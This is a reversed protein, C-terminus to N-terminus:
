LQKTFVAIFLTDARLEYGELYAMQTMSLESNQLIYNVNEENEEKFVSCTIYLLVGDPALQPLINQIIKKQLSAYKQIESKKFFCLLEPTRSWTGSGSCPVDAIIIRFPIEFPLVLPSSLNLVSAKFNKVGANSFRRELNKIISPRKDTATLCVNQITDVLLISKGGSGACCDWVDVPSIDNSFKTTLFFEGVRQSNYDQVVAEKDIKLIDSVKENASFVLCRENMRGFSIKADYLKRIVISEQAPRIRLFFDPQQLFSISFKEANIKESLDANFHFIKHHDFFDQLIELKDPISLSIRPHEGAKFQPLVFHTETECLFTSILLKEQLSVPSIIGLGVRFYNYCLSAIQKRDKSGHKKHSSFYNRLYHHFPENGKYASIIIEAFPSYRRFSASELIGSIVKGSINM